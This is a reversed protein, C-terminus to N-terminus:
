DGSLFNTLKWTNTTQIFYKVLLTLGLGVIWPYTIPTFKVLAIIVLLDFLVVM